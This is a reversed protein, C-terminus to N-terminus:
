YKSKKQLKKKAAAKRMEKDKRPPVPSDKHMMQNDLKKYDEKSPM